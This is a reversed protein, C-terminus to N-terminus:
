HKKKRRQPEIMKRYEPLTENQPDFREWLELWQAGNVRNASALHYEIEVMCLAGLETVHMRSRMELRSLLTEAYPLDDDEIAQRAITTIAFFSEPHRSFLDQRVARAADLDDQLEYALGLNSLLLADGPAHEIAKELLAQAAAGDQRYLAEAAKAALEAAEPPYHVDPQGMNVRAPLFLREVWQHGDWLRTVGKPLVGAEVLTQAFGLREQYSGSQGMVYGLAVEVLRPHASVAALRIVFDRSRPDGRYLLHPALSFLEPHTEDLLKQILQHAANIDTVQSLQGTIQDSVPGLTWYDFPFAWIAGREEPSKNSEKLNEVAWDFYSSAKLAMGWYEKAQDEKGLHWASVAALHYFGAEEVPIMGPKLDGAEKALALLSQDDEVFALGEAILAWSEPKTRPASKLSAAYSLADEERGSLFNLRVLANITRINEPDEKLLRVATDIADKLKGELANIQVLADLGPIFNRRRRLLKKVTARAMQLQDHDLYYDAEDVMVLLSMALDISVDLSLARKIVQQELTAVSKKVQEANQHEPWRKMFERYTQLALGPRNRSVYAGALGFLSDPQPGELEVLRRIAQEYKSLHGMMHYANVLQAAVKPDNPYDRELAEYIKMAESPQGSKMLDIARRHEAIWPATEAVPQATSKPKQM